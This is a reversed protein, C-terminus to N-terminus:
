QQGAVGVVAAGVVIANLGIVARVSGVVAVISSRNTAVAGVTGVARHQIIIGGGDGAVSAIVEVAVVVVLIVIVEVDSTVVQVAVVAVVVAILVVNSYGAVAQQGAVAVIVVNSREIREVHLDGGGS